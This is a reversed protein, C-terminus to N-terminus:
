VWTVGQPSMAREVRACLKTARKCNTGQLGGLFRLVMVPKCLVAAMLLIGNVLVVVMVISLSFRIPGDTTREAMRRIAPVFWGSAIMAGGAVLGISVRIMSLVTWHDARAVSLGSRASVYLAFAGFLVSGIHTFTLASM